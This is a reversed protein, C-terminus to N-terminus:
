NAGNTIFKVALAEWIQLISCDARTRMIVVVVTCCNCPHYMEYCLLWGHGPKANHAWSSGFHAPSAPPPPPQMWASYILSIHIFLFQLAINLKNCPHLPLTLPTYLALQPPPHGLGQQHFSLHFPVFTCFVWVAVTIIELEQHQRLEVGLLPILLPYYFLM